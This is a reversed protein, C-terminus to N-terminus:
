ANGTTMLYWKEKRQKLKKGGKKEQHKSHKSGQVCVCVRETEGFRDSKKKKKEEEERKTCM